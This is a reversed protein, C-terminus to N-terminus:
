IQPLVNLIVRVFVSYAEQIYIQTKKQMADYFNHWKM